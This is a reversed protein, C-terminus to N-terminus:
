RERTFSVEMTVLVPVPKGDLTGPEFHWKRASAIAAEDLDPHRSTVVRIDGVSGDAEVVMELMVGGQVHADHPERPYFPKATRLPRPNKLGGQGQQLAGDASPKVDPRLTAAQLGRFEVSGRNAQLVIYATFEDLADATMTPVGNVAVELRGREARVRLQQWEGNRATAAAAPQAATASEPTARRLTAGEARVTGADDGGTLLVHYGRFPSGEMRPYGPWARLAVAGAADPEPLRFELDFVFDSYLRRTRLWGSSRKLTIVRGRESVIAAREAV